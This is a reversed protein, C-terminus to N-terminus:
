KQVPTIHNWINPVSILGQSIYKNRGNKNEESKSRGKFNSCIVLVISSFHGRLLISFTFTNEARASTLIMDVRPLPEM